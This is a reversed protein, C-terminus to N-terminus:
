YQNSGSINETKKLTMGKGNINMMKPPKCEYKEKQGTVSSQAYLISERSIIRGVSHEESHGRSVHIPRKNKKGAACHARFIKTGTFDLFYAGRSVPEINPDVQQCGKIKWFPKITLEQNTM